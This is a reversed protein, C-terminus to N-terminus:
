SYDASGCLMNWRLGLEGGTIAQPPGVNAYGGGAPLIVFVGDVGFFVCQQSGPSTQIHSVSLPNSTPIWSSIVGMDVTYQEDTTGIFTASVPISSQRASLPSAGVLSALLPLLSM